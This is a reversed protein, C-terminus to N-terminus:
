TGEDVAPGGVVLGDCWFGCRPCEVTAPGYFRAPGRCVECRRTQLVDLRWDYVTYRLASVVRAQAARVKVFIM